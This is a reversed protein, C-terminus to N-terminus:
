RVSDAEGLSARSCTARPNPGLLFRFLLMIPKQSVKGVEVYFLVGAFAVFCAFRTISSAYSTAVFRESFALSQMICCPQLCLTSLRDQM